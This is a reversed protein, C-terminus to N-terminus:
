SAYAFITVVFQWGNSLAYSGFLMLMTCSYLPLPLEVTVNIPQINDIVGKFWPLNLLSNMNEYTFHLCGALILPIFESWGQIFLCCCCCSFVEDSTYQCFCRLVASRRSLFLCIQIVFSKWLLYNCLINSWTLCSICVCWKPNTNVVTKVCKYLFLIMLHMSNFIFINVTM